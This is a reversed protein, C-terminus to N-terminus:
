KSPVDVNKASKAVNEMNAIAAERQKTLDLNQENIQAINSKSSQKQMEQQKFLDYKVDYNRSGSNIDHNNPLIKLTSNNNTKNVRKEAPLNNDYKPSYNRSEDEIETSFSYSAIISLSTFILTRKM